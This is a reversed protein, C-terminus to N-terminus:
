RKGELSTEGQDLRPVPWLLAQTIMRGLRFQRPDLFCSLYGTVAGGALAAVAVGTAGCRPILLLNLAINVITGAAMAAMAAVHRNEAMLCATRAFSVCLFLLGWALIALLLAARAYAPGFLIRIGPAALVTVAIAMSYGLAAMFSFYQRLRKEFFELGRERAAVVAPFVSSSVVSPVFFLGEYIGAAVSYVGLEADGAYRGLLVRDMRSYVMKLVSSIVLPACSVAMMKLWEPSFRWVVVRGNCIMYAALLAVANLVYGALFLRAYGEPGAGFHVCFLTVVIVVAHAAGRAIVVVRSEVRSQYWFDIVDLAQFVGVCSITIVLRHTMEMGRNFLLSAAAAAIVAIIGGAARMLAATGMIAPTEAPRRVLERVVIPMLSLDALPCFLAAFSMAYSLAGFRDPGLQRVILSGLLLGIVARASRDAALWLANAAVRRKEPATNKWLSVAFGLVEPDGKM